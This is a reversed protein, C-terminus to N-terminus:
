LYLRTRHGTVDLKLKRNSAICSPVLLKLDGSLTITKGINSTTGSYTNQLMKRIVKM